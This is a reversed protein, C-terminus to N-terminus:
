DVNKCIAAVTFRLAALHLLNSYPSDSAEMPTTEDTIPVYCVGRNLSVEDFVELFHWIQTLFKPSFKKKKDFKKQNKMVIFVRKADDLAHPFGEYDYRM